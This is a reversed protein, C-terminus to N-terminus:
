LRRRDNVWGEQEWNCSWKKEGQADKVLCRMKKKRGKLDRRGVSDNPVVRRLRLCPIRIHM